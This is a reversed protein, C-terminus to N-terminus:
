IAMAVGRNDIDAVNGVYRPPRAQGLSVNSREAM